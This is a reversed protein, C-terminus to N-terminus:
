YRQHFHGLANSIFFFRNILTFTRGISSRLRSPLLRILSAVLPVSDVYRAMNKVYSADRGLDEASACTILHDKFECFPQGVLFQSATQVIISRSTRNLNVTKYQKTDLDLLRDMSVGIKNILDPILEDLDRKIQHHVFEPKLIEFKRQLTYNTQLIEAIAKVGLSQEPQRVVWDMYSSPLFIRNKELIGPM